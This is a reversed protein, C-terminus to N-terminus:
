KCSSVAIGYPYVKALMIKNKVAPDNMMFTEAEKEDKAYFIVLGMMAPDNTELQTRGALVVVGENKLKVLRQFHEGVIRQEEPGWNKEDKYKEPLSLVGLYTQRKALLSDQAGAQMAYCFTLILIIYRM